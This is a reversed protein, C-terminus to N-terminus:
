ALNKERAIIRAKNITSSPLEGRSIRGLAEALKKDQMEELQRQYSGRAYRRGGSKHRDSVEFGATERLGSIRSRKVKTKGGGKSVEDFYNLVRSTVQDHEATGKRALRKASKRTIIRSAFEGGGADGGAEAMLKNVEKLHDSLTERTTMDDDLMSIIHDLNLGAAAAMMRIPVPIGQERMSALLDLYERDATPSLQKHWEVKPQYYETIDDIENIANLNSGDCIAMMRGSATEHFMRGTVQMDRKSKKFGNALAISPFMKEYFIERTIVDRYQKIQEMFVSLAVEMTTFTADGSLFSDSIGLGRLKAEALYSYVDSHKYFDDGRIIESFNIDPRTAIVAGTPDMNANVVLSVIQRLEDDTAEWEDTGAVIHTIARQRQYSQEISGRLMAKEMLWLPIIRHLYSMGMTDFTFSKRAIYLTSLPDLLIKGGKEVKKYLEPLNKMVNSLRPDAGKTAGGKGTSMQIIDAIAKPLNLTLLPDMGYIPVDQVELDLGNHTILNNYIGRSKDFEFTGAMAGDVLFDRSLYPFITPLRANEVSKVFTGLIKRDNIGSLTFGSFPLNSMLEVAAGCVTDFEFIDRCIEMRHKRGPPVLGEMSPLQFNMSLSRVSTNSPAGSSASDSAVEKMRKSNKADQMSAMVAMPASSGELGRRIPTSSSATIGYRGHGKLM